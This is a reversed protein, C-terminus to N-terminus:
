SSRTTQGCCRKKKKIKRAGTCIFVCSGKHLHSAKESPKELASHQPLYKPKLGLFYSCAPFLVALVKM